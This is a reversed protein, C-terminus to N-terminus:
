QLDNRIDNVDIAELVADLDSDDIVTISRLPKGGRHRSLVALRSFFSTIQSPRLRENATFLLNGDADRATKMHKAVDVPNSKHGSEEGKRFMETLYAKVSQSFRASKKEKRLAWGMALCERNPDLHEKGHTKQPLIDTAMLHCSSAWKAKVCDYTSSKSLKTDHKGTILHNQLADFSQYIKSCGHQDCFFVNNVPREGSQDDPHPTLVCSREEHPMAPQPQTTPKSIKGDTAKDFNFDSLVQLETNDQEQNAFSLFKEKPMLEGPGIGHARFTRIGKDELRLNSITSVGKMKHGTLTQASNNVNVVATQCGVVGSGSDLAEKMDMASIVNHGSAAYVRIKGRMHAIKSDCYSKGSQAESYDYQLIKVGTRCSVGFLSLWLPACHYCGANDSRIYVETLPLQMKLSNLANELVSCVAFWDQKTSDMIHTLTRHKLNGEKDKYICVTVHWNIGKQGFWDSQKERYFTPLFKMAWDLVLLAQHPKLSDLITIRAEDQNLTRLIHAKWQDIQKCCDTLEENLDAKDDESFVSEEIIKRIERIVDHWSECMSCHMNHDHDCVSQYMTLNPDSLAWDRCHDACASSKVVHVKYESKLYVQYGNLQSILQQTKIRPVGHEELKSVVKILHDFGEHGEASINDLGKMCTRKSAACVKLVKFLTARSLPEFGSDICYCQYMGILTSHCATRVVEPIQIMEGTDLKLERTGYSAIQYFAPNFFFALAHEMKEPDMRMRKYKTYEEPKLGSQFQAAYLRAQDIRYTTLEPICDLLEAKSMSRSMLSLLQCRIFNDETAGYLHVVTNMLDSNSNGKGNTNSQKSTIMDLLEQAQGPAITNLIADVVASAKKKIYRKSSDALDELATNIKYRVPSISSSQLYGNLKEFENQELLNEVSWSSTQSGDETANESLTQSTDNFVENNATNSYICSTTPDRLNYPTAQFVENNATHSYVCSTDPCNYPTGKYVENNTSHSCVCSTTGDTCNCSATDKCVNDHHELADTEKLLPGRFTYIDGICKRCVGAGVPVLSGVNKMIMQSMETNVNRYPKAKGKHGPYQCTSRQKWYLGQRDRHYPCVTYLNLDADFLGCRVAILHGESIVGNTNVSLGKLHQNFPRNCDRLLIVETNEFHSSLGCPTGTFVSVSCKGGLQIPSTM